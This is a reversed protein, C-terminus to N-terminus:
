WCIFGVVYIDSWGAESYSFFDGYHGLCCSCAVMSPLPLPSPTSYFPNASKHAFISPLCHTPLILVSMAIHLDSILTAEKYDSHTDATTLVRRLVSLFPNWHFVFTIGAQQTTQGVGDAPGVRWKYVIKLRLCSNSASYGMYM